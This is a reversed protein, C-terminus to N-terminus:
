ATAVKYYNVLEVTGLASSACENMAIACVFDNAEAKVLEGSADVTLEDGAKIAEGVVAVGVGFIQYTVDDGVAVNTDNDITIIGIPKEGKTNCLVIDGNADFKVVKGGANDIEVASVGARTPSTNIGNTMYQKM